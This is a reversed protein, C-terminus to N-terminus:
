GHSQDNRERYIEVGIGELAGPLAIHPKNIRVKVAQVGPERLAADAIRGAVTELLKVPPGEVTERALNYIRVYDLTDELRDSAAADTLDSFLDIDVVFKQGLENESAYCGHRGFFVLGKLFIRDM